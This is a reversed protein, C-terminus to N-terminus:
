GAGLKQLFIRSDTQVWEEALRDDDDYRFVNMLEWETNAGTPPLEGVSAHIFPRTFTGSFITRAALYRDEGIIFARRVALNEFAARLAAFYGRLSMFDIDAGPLHLVYDSTYYDRLAGDDEKAIATEGIAILAAALSSQTIYAVTV